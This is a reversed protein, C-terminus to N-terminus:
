LFTNRYFICHITSDPCWVSCWFRNTQKLCIELVCHCRHGRLLSIRFVSGQDTHTLPLAQRESAPRTTLSYTELKCLRTLHSLHIIHPILLFTHRIWKSFWITGKPSTSLQLELCSNEPLSPLAEQPLYLVYDADWQTMM